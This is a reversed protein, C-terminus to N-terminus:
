ATIDPQQAKRKKKKVILVITCLIIQLLSSAPTALGIRFLSVPQISKMLMSVPIRVCFAGVVGQLM